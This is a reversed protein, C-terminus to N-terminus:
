EALEYLSSSRTLATTVELFQHALELGEFFDSVEILMFDSM